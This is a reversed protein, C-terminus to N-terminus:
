VMEEIVAMRSTLSQRSRVGNMDTLDIFCGNSRDSCLEIKQVTRLVVMGSTSETVVVDRGILEERLIDLM